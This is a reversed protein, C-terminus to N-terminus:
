VVVPAVQETPVAKVVPDTPTAEDTRDLEEVRDVPEFRVVRVTAGFSTMVGAQGSRTMPAMVERTMAVLGPVPGRYARCM